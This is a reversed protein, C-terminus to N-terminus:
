HSKHQADELVDDVLALASQVRELATGCLGRVAEADNPVARLAANQEELVQLEEALNLALLLAVQQPTASKASRRLEEYRRSVLNGLAQVSADDRETRVAFTQGLLSVEVRRKM